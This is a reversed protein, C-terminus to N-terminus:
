DWGTLQWGVTSALLGGGFPLPPMADERWPPVM